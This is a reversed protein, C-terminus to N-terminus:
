VIIRFQNGDSARQAEIRAAHASLRWNFKKKYAVSLQRKHKLAM